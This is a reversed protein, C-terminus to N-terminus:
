RTIHTIIKGVAAREGRDSDLEAALTDSRLPLDSVYLVVGAYPHLHPFRTEARAIAQEVEQLEMDVSMCGKHRARALQEVTENIVSTSNLNKGRNVMGSALVNRLPYVPPHRQMLDTESVVGTPYVLDHRAMSPLLGGVRGFFYLGIDRDRGTSRAVANYERMLKDIIVGAQDAYVYSINLVPKGGVDVIQADLYESAGRERVGAQKAVAAAPGFIITSIDAIGGGAFVRRGEYSSDPVFLGAVFDYANNEYSQDTRRPDDQLEMSAFDLHHGAAERYAGIMEEYRQRRGFGSFQPIFLTNGARYIPERPNRQRVREYQLDSGQLRRELQSPLTGNHLEIRSIEGPPANEGFLRAEAYATIQAPSFVRASEADTRHRAAM